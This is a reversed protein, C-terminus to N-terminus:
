WTPPKGASQDSHFPLNRSSTRSNQFPSGPTSDVKESRTSPLGSTYSSERREGSELTLKTVACSPNV